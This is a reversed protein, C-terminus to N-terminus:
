TNTEPNAPQRTPPNSPQRTLPNSPKLTPPNLPQRTPPNYGRLYKMFATIMRRTKEALRYMDDFGDKGIYKRDLAVYLDCQVESASRRAYGLFKAFEAKSGSDFGEAINNMISVSARQIQQSLGWDKNFGAEETAGYIAKTLMRAEQWAEIDEFRTIKM